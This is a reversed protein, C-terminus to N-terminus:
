RHTDGAALLRVEDPSKREVGATHMAKRYVGNGFLNTQPDSDNCPFACEGLLDAYHSLTTPGGKARDMGLSSVIYM